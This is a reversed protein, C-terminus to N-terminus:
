DQEQSASTACVAYGLPDEASGLNLSMSLHAAVIFGLTVPLLLVALPWTWVISLFTRPFLCRILMVLIKNAIAAVDNGREAIKISTFGATRLL